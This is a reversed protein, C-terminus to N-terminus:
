CTTLSPNLLVTNAGESEGDILYARDFVKTELYNNKEDFFLSIVKCLQM